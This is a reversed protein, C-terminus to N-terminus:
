IKDMKGCDVNSPQLLYCNFLIYFFINYKKCFNTYGEIDKILYREKKAIDLNEKIDGDIHSDRFSWGIAMIDNDLLYKGIGQGEKYSTNVQLRWIATM